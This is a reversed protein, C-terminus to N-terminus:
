NTSRVQLVLSQVKKHGPPPIPLCAPSLIRHGLLRVPELGTQPVSAPKLYFSGLDAKKKLGLDSAITSMKFIIENVKNTRYHNMKRDYEIGSPFLLNQLEM